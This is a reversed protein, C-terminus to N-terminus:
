RPEDQYLEERTWPQTEQSPLGQLWALLRRKAQQREDGARGSSPLLSAVAEGHSTITYSAGRRVERLLKSFQRNAETASITKEM